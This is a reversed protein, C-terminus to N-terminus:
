WRGYPNTLRGPRAATSYYNMQEKFLDLYMRASNGNQMHLFCLHAAFYAVAMTWPDPIPEPDFDGELDLPLCCADWEMQYTQSPIPYLFFTGKSGQGHQSGITPIYQFQFPYNRLLAQYVSFSYMPLSYRYNAYILSVSKVMIIEKIGPFVSLDVGSFPYVEQAGQLTNMFSMQSVTATAGTALPSPDTITVLPQFYGSGGFNINVGAITGAFATAVATAQAGAPYPQMGSPFDPGSITVVPATYNQGPNTVAISMISGSIPTLIRVCQARMAVERRARNIFIRLDDPNVLEQKADNIFRQVDQMYDYLM